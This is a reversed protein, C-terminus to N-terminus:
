IALVLRPGEKYRALLLAVTVAYLAISVAYWIRFM